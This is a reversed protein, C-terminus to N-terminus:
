TKCCSTSTFASRWHSKARRCAGTHCTRSAASYGRPACADTADSAHKFPLILMLVFYPCLAQWFDFWVLKIEPHDELYKKIAETQKGDEDPNTKDLWRHSVALCSALHSSDKGRSGQIVDQKPIEVETLAGPHNLMLEQHVPIKKGNAPDAALIFESRVFWFKVVGAEEQAKVAKEQDEKKEQLEKLEAAKKVGFESGVFIMSAIWGLIGVSFSNGHIIAMGSLTLDESPGHTDPHIVFLLALVGGLAGVFGCIVAAIIRPSGRSAWNSWTLGEKLGFAYNPLLIVLLASAGAAISSQTRANLAQGIYYAECSDLMSPFRDYGGDNCMRLFTDLRTAYTQTCYLHMYTVNFEKTPCGPEWFRGNFSTRPVQPSGLCTIMVYLMVLGQILVVSVVQPWIKKRVYSPARGRQRRVLSVRLNRMVIWLLFLIVPILVALGSMFGWARSSSEENNYSITDASKLFSGDGDGHIVFSLIIMVVLGYVLLTLGLVGKSPTRVAAELKWVELVDLENNKKKEQILHKLVTDSGHRMSAAYLLTIHLPIVSFSAFQFTQYSILRVPGNTPLSCSPDGPKCLWMYTSLGYVIAAIHLVVPVCILISVLPSGPNGVDSIDLQTELLLSKEMAMKGEEIDRGFLLAAKSLRGYSLLHQLRSPQRKFQEDAPEDKEM